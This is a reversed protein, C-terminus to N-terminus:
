PHAGGILGAFLRVPVLYVGLDNRSACSPHNPSVPTETRPPRHSGRRGSQRVPPAARATLRIVEEHVQTDMSPSDVGPSGAKSIHADKESAENGGHHPQVSLSAM